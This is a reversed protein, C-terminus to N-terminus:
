FDADVSEVYDRCEKRLAALRRVLEADDHISMIEVFEQNFLDNISM